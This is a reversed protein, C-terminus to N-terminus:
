FGESTVLFLMDNLRKVTGRYWGSSDSLWTQSITTSDGKALNNYTGTSWNAVVGQAGGDAAAFSQQQKVMNKGVTQEQMGVFFAGAVLGGVVVLAFIALVLAIGKENRAHQM